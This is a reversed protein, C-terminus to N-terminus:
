ERFNLFELEKLATGFGVEYESNSLSQIIYKVLQALNINGGSSQMILNTLPRLLNLNTELM